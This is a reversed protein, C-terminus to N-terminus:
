EVDGKMKAGCTPCFNWKDMMTHGCLSCKNDYERLEIWEGQPREEYRWGQLIDPVVQGSYYPQALGVNVNVKNILNQTLENTTDVTPANDITSLALKVLDTKELSKLKRLYATASSFSLEEKFENKLADADILRM